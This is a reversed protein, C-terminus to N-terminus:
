FPEDGYDDHKAKPHSQRENRAVEVRAWRCSPAVEDAVLEVVSRKEGGDAEWSRQQLRGVVVIRTGKALNQINDALSGWCIVNFFSTDEIWEGQRAKDPRRHNVAIGFVAQQAGNPTFRLEPDRVLNGVLTTTATM